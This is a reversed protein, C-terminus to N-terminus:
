KKSKVKSKPKVEEKKVEEKPKVIKTKVDKAKVEKKEEFKMGALGAFYIATDKFSSFQKVTNATDSIITIKIEM